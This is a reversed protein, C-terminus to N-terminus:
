RGLEMLRLFEQRASASADRLVGRVESTVTLAQETRVGRAAMCLHTARLVVGVGAPELIRDILDAVKATIREQLNPGQAVARLLRPLKSLGVLKGKPLYAITATGFFPVLHHECLSYFGIGNLVVMGYSEEEFIASTLLEEPEVSNDQTYYDAFRQPTRELGVEEVTRGFAHLISEAAAELHAITEQQRDMDMLDEKSELQGTDVLAELRRM